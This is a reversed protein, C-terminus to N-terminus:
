KINNMKVNFKLEDKYLFAYLNVFFKEFKTFLLLIFGIIKNSLPRLKPVSILFCIFKIMFYSFKDFITETKVKSIKPLTPKLYTLTSNLTLCFARAIM